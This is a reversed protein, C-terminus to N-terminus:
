YTLCAQYDNTDYVVRIIVRTVNFLFSHLGRVRLRARATSRLLGGVAANFIVRSVNVPTIFRNFVSDFAALLRRQMEGLGTSSM